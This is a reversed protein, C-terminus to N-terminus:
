GVFHHTGQGGPLTAQGSVTEGDAMTWGGPLPCIIQAECGKPVDIKLNLRDADRKWEVAIVGHPTPYTGRAWELGALNPAIRVRRFGPAVPAIGLVDTSLDFVPSASWAHCKSTNDELQWNEWFTSDGTELMAAWRARINKVIKDQLGAARMAQHLVQMYFPQALVVNREEDFPVPLGERSSLRTLVLRGDDLISDFIQTWRERPAVGYAIVAANAQQSIRHSLRSHNRADAYVGRQEDWLLTNIALSIKDALASFRGAERPQEVIQALQTAARLAAVFHANLATVQGHKDLEAWDVFVWHPVDTLLNEDNLQDEFWRIAKVVSLFLADVGDNKGTYLTYDAIMMIWYLCFDPINTFGALAFDGPAAMMTLGDARQSQAMQKLTQAALRTDGFAAYNIRAHVYADMWQRQERSPCDVYGDHMCRRMTKAGAQWIRNLMDDSCVFSGINEVPYQTTRLAVANVRLPTQCNRYTVQLYRLGNWEFREWEQAGERMTYRHAPVADFGAIGGFIKVRGDSKLQEGYVIDATAGAPGDLGLRIYGTLIEGFDYVISVGYNDATQIEAGNDTVRCHKLPQFLEQAIQEALDPRPVTAVEYIGAVRPPPSLAERMPPIERVSLTAFPVVDGAFNRGAVRLTEISVWDSDDFDLATWNQPARRADYIEVFGLSNSTVDHEWAASMLCRWTEDTDLRVVAGSQTVANGQLFFGGCGFARGHDGGPLEYWATNRGYSHALAAIVNRGPELYAALDYVDLTQFASSCRAPGRGVRVGNVYLQYRGDASAHVPASAVHEPIDVVCRFYVYRNTEDALRPSSIEFPATTLGRPRWIWEARRDFKAM